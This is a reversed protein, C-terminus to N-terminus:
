TRGSENWFIGAALRLLVCQNRDVNDVNGTSRMRSDQLTNSDGFDIGQFHFRAITLEQATFDGHRLVKGWYSQTVRHHGDKRHTYVELAEIELLQQKPSGIHPFAKLAGMLLTISCPQESAGVYHMVWPDVMPHLEPQVKGRRTELSSQREALISKGRRPISTTSPEVNPCDETNCFINRLPDGM